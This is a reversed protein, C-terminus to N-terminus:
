RATRLEFALYAVSHADYRRFYVSSGSPAHEPAVCVWAANTMTRAIVRYMYIGQPESSMYKPYKHFDDTQSYRFTDGDDVLESPRLLTQLLCRYPAQPM